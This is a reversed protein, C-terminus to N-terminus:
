ITKEGGMTFKGSRIVVLTPGNGIGDIVDRCYPKRTKALEAKCANKNATTKTVTTSPTDKAAAVTETVEPLEEVIIETTILAPETEDTPIDTQEQTDTNSATTDAPPVKTTGTDPISDTETKAGSTQTEAEIALKTDPSEDQTTIVPEVKGEVVMRPDNIGIQNAFDVLAQQKAIATANDGLGLLAREENLQKYITNSMRSIATSNLATTQEQISLNQWNSMFQQKNKESWNNQKLFEEVLNDAASAISIEDVNISSQEPLQRAISTEEQTSSDDQWVFLIVLVFLCILAVIGSGILWYHHTEKPPPPTPPSPPPTKPKQALQAPTIQTVASEVTQDGEDLDIPPPFEIPAVEIKGAIINEILETRAKRYDKHDTAGQACDKALAGLTKNTV